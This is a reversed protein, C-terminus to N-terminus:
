KRSHAIGVRIVNSDEPYVCLRHFGNSRINLTDTYIDHVVEVENQGIKFLVRTDAPLEKRQNLGIVTSLTKKM